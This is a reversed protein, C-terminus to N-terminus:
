WVKIDVEVTGIDPDSDSGSSGGCVNLSKKNNESDPNVTTVSNACATEADPDGIPYEAVVVDTPDLQPGNGLEIRLGNEDTWIGDPIMVGDGNNPDPTVCDNGGCEVEDSADVDVVGDGDTDLGVDILGPCPPKTGNQANDSNGCEQIFPTVNVSSPYTINLADLSNGVSSSGPSIPFEVRQTTRSTSSSSTSPDVNEDVGVFGVRKRSSVSAIDQGSPVEEGRIYTTDVLTNHATPDPKDPSLVSASSYLEAIEDEDLARDYLRVEDIVGNFYRRDSPPSQLNSGIAFSDGIANGITDSGQGKLDGNVYMKLEQGATSNYVGVIHYWEGENLPSSWDAEGGGGREFTPELTEGGSSDLHMQYGNNYGKAAITAFTPQAGEHKVWASLTMNGTDAAPNLERQESVNIADEYGEFRYAGSSSIGRVDTTVGGEIEGHLRTDISEGHVDRAEESRRENLPWYAVLDEKTGYNTYDSSLSINFRNVESLGLSDRVEDDSKNEFFESINGHDFYGPPQDASRFVDTQIRDSARDAVRISDGATSSYPQIMTFMFTLAFLLTLIFLTMGTLFDISTQGERSSKQRIKVV